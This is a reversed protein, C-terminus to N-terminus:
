AHTVSRETARRSILRAAEGYKSFSQPYARALDLADVLWRPLADSSKIEMISHGPRTIPRACDDPGMLDVYRLEDDFTIRPEDQEGLPAWACRECMIAASPALDEYRELAAELERAIQRDLATHDPSASSAIDCTATDPPELALAFTNTAAEYSAKHAFAWAAPLSLLVRRKYVIGKFKKKLEFFVPVHLLDDFRPDDQAPLGARCTELLLAGNQKGYTRLRLKEKYLPKELSRAILSRSPTDLYVSTVLSRGYQDPAMHMRASAEITARQGADILYKKELRKFVSTTM